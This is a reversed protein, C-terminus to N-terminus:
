NIKTGTQMNIRTRKLSEPVKGSKLMEVDEDSILIGSQLTYTGGGAHLLVHQYTVYYFMGRTERNHSNRQSVRWGTLPCNNFFDTYTCATVIWECDEWGRNIRTAREDAAKRRDAEEAKKYGDLIRQAEEKSITM